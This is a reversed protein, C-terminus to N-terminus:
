SLLPKASWLAAVTERAYDGGHMTGPKRKVWSMQLEFLDSFEAIFQSCSFLVNGVEAIPDWTLRVSATVDSLPGTSCASYYGDNNTALSVLLTGGPKLIRHMERRYGARDADALQHFYVFIDTALDFADDEFPLTRTVDGQVFSVMNSGPRKRATDLATTSFDMGDVRKVGANALALANRGTGCGLDVASQVPDATLYPL